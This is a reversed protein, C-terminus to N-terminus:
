TPMTRSWRALHVPQPISVISFGRHRAALPALCRAGAAAAFRPKTLALATQRDRLPRLLDPRGLMGPGIAGGCRFCLGLAKEAATNLRVGPM